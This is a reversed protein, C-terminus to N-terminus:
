MLSARNLPFVTSARIDDWGLVFQTVRNLGMGFGAHLTKGYKKYFNLYWEFDKISGGRKELQKLMMSKELKELLVQYEYEREAAGVAEGSGPLILDTSNVVKSNKRNTKMNFFKIEVPFHTIFLPKKGLKEALIKEHKSKLDDGM